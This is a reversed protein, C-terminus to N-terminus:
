PYYFSVNFFSRKAPNSSLDAEIGPKSVPLRKDPLCHGMNLQNTKYILSFAMNYRTDLTLGLVVHNHKGGFYM